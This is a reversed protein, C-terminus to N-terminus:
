PIVISFVAAVPTDLDAAIRVFANNITEQTNQSSIHLRRTAKSATQCLRYKNDIMEKARFIIESRM